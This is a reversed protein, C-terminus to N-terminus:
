MLGKDQWLGLPIPYAFFAVKLFIETKTMWAIYDVSMAKQIESM